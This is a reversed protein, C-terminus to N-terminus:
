HYYGIVLAITVEEELEVITDEVEINAGAKIAVEKVKDVEVAEAEVVEAVVAVVEIPAEPL